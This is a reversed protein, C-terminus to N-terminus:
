KKDECGIKARYKAEAEETVNTQPAIKRRLEMLEPFTLTKCTNYEWVEGTRPSVVFLGFVTTAGINPYDCYAWVSYYDQVFPKGDKRVPELECYRSSLRVKGHRLVERVLSKAQAETIIAAPQTSEELNGLKAREPELGETFDIPDICCDYVAVELILDLQRQEGRKVEIGKVVMSRFGPKTITLDYAGPQAEMNANGAADTIQEKKSKSSVEVSTVRADAIASGLTDSVKVRVFAFNAKEQAEVCCYAALFVFLM